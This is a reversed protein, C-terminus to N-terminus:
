ADDKVGLEPHWLGLLDPDLVWGAMVLKAGFVPWRIVFTQWGIRHWEMHCDRCHPWVNWATDPGGAGRSRIHSADSPGVKGCASCPLKRIAELLKKDKKTTPKRFMM